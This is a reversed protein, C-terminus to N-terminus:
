VVKAYITEFSLVGADGLRDIEEFDTLLTFRRGDADTVRVGVFKVVGATQGKALYRHVENWYAGLLSAERASAIAVDRV